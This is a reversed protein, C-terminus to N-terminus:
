EWAQFSRRKTMVFEDNQLFDGPIINIVPYLRRLHSVAWDAIIHQVAIDDHGCQLKKIINIDSRTREDILVHGRDSEVIERLQTTLKTSTQQQEYAYDTILYPISHAKFLNVISMKDILTRRIHDEEDWHELMAQMYLDSDLPNNKDPLCVGTYDKLEGLRDYNYWFEHRWYQSCFVIFIPKSNNPLNQIVYEHTRRKISDNGSGPVAINVVPINLQNAVLAPWGQSKPDPLGQCYTWSCGNVVLHTADM